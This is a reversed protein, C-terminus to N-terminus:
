KTFYDTSKLSYPDISHPKCNTIGIKSTCKSIMNALKYSSGFTTILATKTLLNIDLILLAYLLTRDQEIINNCFNEYRTAQISLRQLKKMSFSFTIFTNSCM